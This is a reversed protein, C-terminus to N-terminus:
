RPNLSDDQFIIGIYKGEYEFVKFTLTRSLVYEQFALNDQIDDMILVAKNDLWPEIRKLFDLRSTKRKDSDYHVISYKRNGRLFGKLNETDGKTQLNWNKLNRLRDPVLIGIYQEPNEIRFYPLDSSDLFGKENESLAELVAYSSWGAAVGTELVYNPKLFRCLFYILDISGGGGLDIGKFALQQVTPVSEFFVKQVFLHTEIQLNSDLKSMFSAADESKSAAWERAETAESKGLEKLRLKFKTWLIGTSRRRLAFTLVNVITKYMNRM